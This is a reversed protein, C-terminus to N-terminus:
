EQEETSHLPLAQHLFKEAGNTAFDAATQGQGRLVWKTSLLGDLGVPGRAHIRGTSIGVEAGLGFRYGDAFRTSANHFVCASDVQQLFSQATDEDETVVCDTHGSGFKNCHSVADLVDTVLEITCELTGYEMRLSRAAPPGFKLRQALRPGAHVKVGAEKLMDFLKEFIGDHELLEEHVLLTEMANCAAPYDCKSDFVVRLAKELSAKRDVYVHCVGESHGLVPINRATSQIDAIMQASGRPIVLDLYKDMQLLDSVDERGQV